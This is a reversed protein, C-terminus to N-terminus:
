DEETDRTLSHRVPPSKGGFRSVTAARMDGKDTKLSSVEEVEDAEMLVVMERLGLLLLM